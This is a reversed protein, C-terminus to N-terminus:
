KISDDIIHGLNTLLGVVIYAPILAFMVIGMFYNLGQYEGGIINFILAFIYAVVLVGISFDKSYKWGFGYYVLGQLVFSGSITMFYNTM